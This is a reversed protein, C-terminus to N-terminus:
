EDTEEKCIDLDSIFNLFKNSTFLEEIKNEFENKNITPCIFDKLEQRLFDSFNLLQIYSKFKSKKVWM